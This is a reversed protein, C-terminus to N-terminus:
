VHTNPTVILTLSLSATPDFQFASWERFETFWGNGAKTIQRHVLIDSVKM